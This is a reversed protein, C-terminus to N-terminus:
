NLKRKLDNIIEDEITMGLRMSSTEINSALMNTSDKIFEFIIEDVSRSVHGKRKRKKKSIAKSNIGTILCHDFSMTPDLENGLDEYTIEKETTRIEVDLEKIVDFPTDVDQGTARDELYADWIPKEAIVFGINADYEFGSSNPSTILEHVVNIHKKLIKMKSAIHPRAKLGSNSLSSAIVREAHTFYGPKFGRGAKFTRANAMDVLADVLENYEKKTCFRKMLVLDARMNEQHIWELM